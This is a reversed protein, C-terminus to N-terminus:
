SGRCWREQIFGIFGGLAPWVAFFSVMLGAGILRVEDFGFMRGGGEIAGQVFHVLPFARRVRPDCALGSTWDSIGHLPVGRSHDFDRSVGGWDSGASADIEARAAAL